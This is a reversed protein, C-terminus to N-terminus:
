IDRFRAIDDGSQQQSTESEQKSNFEARLERKTKHVLEGKANVTMMENSNLHRAQYAMSIQLASQRTAEDVPTGEPWKGTEAATKMREYMEQSMSDVIEILNM